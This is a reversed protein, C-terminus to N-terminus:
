KESQIEVNGADNEEYQALETMTRKWATEGRRGEEGRARAEM